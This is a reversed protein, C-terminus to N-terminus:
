SHNKPDFCASELFIARTKETVGSGIGGFVGGICMGEATNCIMLDEGSLKREVEDLTVFLTDKPLKKVIVKKDTVSEADFAHLPQGTEMMVFNTIDVINNIPRIGIANLLNKLWDPSEKVQLQTLSLGSYRPCADSDKVEIEINLDSNDIAFKEVSPWLLKAEKNQNEHNLAAVIDRASGIHSTADSRNPTLGIEFVFDDEINFYEKAELGVPADAELVMIGEHDAGMGVEDEACIMGQSLEGRIKSKKIKISDDGMYLTTGVTAVLVKQGVAVNPAGCVIPINEGNGIDVTTKSLKDANPHKECSKVEGIVIGELGGKISQIKETSEVELGCNTLLNELQQPTKDFEVYKKLWNYSLKM